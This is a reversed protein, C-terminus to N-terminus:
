SRDTVVKEFVFQNNGLKGGCTKLNTMSFGRERYFHFIEEPKAVEFPYGGVWDVADWWPSMGRHTVYNKWSRLPSGLISDRLIKPAWWSVFIMSVTAFKGIRPVRNYLKKIQTWYVTRWGQDNYIAICLRGRSAVALCANELAHRMAGTHHLVGWSYVVDFKGLSAVYADDLVSGQEITWGEDTPFYRRKLEQACAVSQQDYDFSHVRAGLRRAALSFLGSGSGIDLFTEGQLTKVGLLDMLSQQAEGIRTENVSELFRRWNEGFEFRMHNKQNASQMM